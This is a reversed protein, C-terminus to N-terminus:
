TVALNVWYTKRMKRKQLKVRREPRPASITSMIKSRVTGERFQFREDLLCGIEYKLSWDDGDAAPDDEISGLM